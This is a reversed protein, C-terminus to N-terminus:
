DSVSASIISIIAFYRPVPERPLLKAPMLEFLGIIVIAEADFDAPNFMEPNEDGYGWERDTYTTLGFHVFAYWEMRLWDVQQKTPLPAYPAPPQAAHACGLGIAALTLSRLTHLISM